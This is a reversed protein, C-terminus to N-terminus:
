EAEVLKKNVLKYFINAKIKYGDVIAAKIALLPYTTGNWGGWEVVVIACGLSGKAKSDYGIAIAVSDKGSVTAASRYGTNTAASQDGTNTAASQDGTNTAASRDGTNTNTETTQEKLYDIGADIIKQLSVEKIIEIDTCVRKTDRKDNQPSVGTALVLCFRSDAPPYYNFIDLPNLCFHLGKHCLDVSTEHYKDGIIYQKNKCKLNLDFGKFGHITIM